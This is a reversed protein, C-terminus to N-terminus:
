TGFEARVETNGVGFRDERKTNLRAVGMMSWWVWVTRMSAWRMRHAGRGSRENGGSGGVGSLGVFRGGKGGTM